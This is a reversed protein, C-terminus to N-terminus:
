KSWISKLENVLLNELQQNTQHKIQISRNDFKPVVLFSGATQGNNVFIELSARDVLIRLTMKGNMM